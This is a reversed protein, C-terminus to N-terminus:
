SARVTSRSWVRPAITGAAAGITVLVRSERREIGAAPLAPPLAGAFESADAPTDWVTLWVITVDDGRAFARFRDGAWGAAVGAAAQPAVTALLIRVDLEGLTDEVIPTWGRRELEDTGGLTIQAPPDREVFYKQHHLVQETSTPPDREADDIAPWGGRLYAAAAFSTGQNYQFALGTRIVEPIDPFRAALEDPIGAVEELVQLVTAKDLDGGRVYAISALTADGELLARRAILRDGDANTIPPATTPLGFHQDQLAHTLEHAVLIEGLVDRGTLFGMVRISMPRDDLAGSALALTKTRPDYLAAIQDGYLQELLPRLNTAPPLLGLRGYVASLRELDGPHYEQDLESRILAAVGAQDLVRGPVPATFPLGRVAQLGHEISTLAPQNIAGHRVIPGPGCAIAVSALALAAAIRNM